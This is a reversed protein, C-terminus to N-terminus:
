PFEIAAIPEPRVHHEREYAEVLMALVEASRGGPHSTTEWLREIQALARTTGENRVPHIECVSGVDSRRVKPTGVFRIFVIKWSGGRRPSLTARSTSYSAITEVFSASAFRGERPSRWAAKTVEAHWAKLAQEADSHKEWFERLTKRSLVRVPDNYCLEWSPFVCTILRM